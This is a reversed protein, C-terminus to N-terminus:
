LGEFIDTDLHPLTNSAPNGSVAFRDHNGVGGLVGAEEALHVFLGLGFGAGDDGDRDSEAIGAEADNFENVADAGFAEIRAVELEQFSERVEGGDSELVCAVYFANVFEGDGVVAGREIVGAVHAENEFGLDVTGLAVVVFEREDENVKIMELLDIIGLAVQDAGAQEGFNAVLELPVAAQNIKGEAITAVLENQEKRLSGLFIGHVDGAAKMTEQALGDPELRFAKVDFQSGAHADGGIGHVRSSLFTEEMEGVFGHVQDLVGIAVADRDGIHADQRVQGGNGGFGCALNKAGENTHMGAM